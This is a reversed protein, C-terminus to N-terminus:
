ALALLSPISALLFRASTEAAYEQYDDAKDKDAFDCVSKMIIAKPRPKGCGEAACALGYAEMEIGLLDRNHDLLSEFVDADAVVAAGSAVPGFHIRLESPPKRGSAEQKIKAMLGVDLALEKLENIMDIDVSIQHPSPRFRPKDNVADLKGSGWDWSPNAVIVDGLNVKGFRGACIGTMALIKPRFSAIMKAALVASAPMGMRPAAGVVISLSQKGARIVGNWYRTEDHPLRLPQWGCPLRKMAALEVTDLACVVAVDYGFTRGDTFNDSSRIAEVYAIKAKIQEMWRDSTDQYHVLTWLRDAFAEGFETIVDDFATVGAVYRPRYLGNGRDIEKLVDLGGGRRPGEGFRRPLNIDLLMLDFRESSLTEVATAANVAHKIRGGDVGSDLVVNHIKGLKEADDEVILVSIPM